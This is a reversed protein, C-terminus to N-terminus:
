GSHQHCDSYRLLLTWYCSTDYLPPVEFFYSLNFSLFVSLLYINISYSTCYVRLKLEVASPDVAGLGFNSFTHAFFCDINNRLFTDDLLLASQVWQIFLKLNISVAILLIGKISNHYRVKWSKQYDAVEVWQRKGVWEIKRHQTLLMSDFCWATSPTGRSALESVEM